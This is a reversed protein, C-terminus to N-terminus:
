KRGLPRLTRLTWVVAALAVLAAAFRQWDPVEDLAKLKGSAAAAAVAATALAYVIAANITKARGAADPKEVPDFWRPAAYTLYLVQQALGLLFLPLALNLLLILALGAAGVVLAGVVHWINRWHEAANPKELTIQAMAADIAASVAVSRIVLPVTLAYFAGIVRLPSEIWIGDM